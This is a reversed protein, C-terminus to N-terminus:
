KRHRESDGRKAVLHRPRTQLDGWFLVGAFVVFMSVVAVSVFVSDIPM